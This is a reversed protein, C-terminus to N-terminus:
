FTQSDSFNVFFNSPNSNERGKEGIETFEAQPLSEIDKKMACAELVENFFKEDYPKGFIINDILKGSFVYPEQEVYAISGTLRVSGM